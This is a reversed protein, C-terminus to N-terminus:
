GGDAPLNDTPLVEPQPPVEVVVRFGTGMSAHEATNLNRRASRVRDPGAYFSGGRVM